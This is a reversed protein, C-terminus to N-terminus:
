IAVLTLARCDCTAEKSQVCVCVCVTVKQDGYKQKAIQVLRQTGPSINARRRQNHSEKMRTELQKVFAEMAAASELHMDEVGCNLAKNKQEKLSALSKEYRGQFSIM